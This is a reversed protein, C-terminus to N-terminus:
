SGTSSEDKSSEHQSEEEKRPETNGTSSEEESSENQSEKEKSTEINKTATFISAVFGSGHGPLNAPPPAQKKPSTTSKSVPPLKKLSSKPGVPSSITALTDIQTEEIWPQQKSKTNQTQYVRRAAATKKM